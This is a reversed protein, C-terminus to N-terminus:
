IDNSFFFGWTEEEEEEEKRKEGLLATYYSVNLARNRSLVEEQGEGSRDCVTFVCKACEWVCADACACLASLFLYTVNHSYVCLCRQQKQVLPFHLKRHLISRHSSHTTSISVSCIVSGATSPCRACVETLAKIKSCVCMSVCPPSLTPHLSHKHTTLLIICIHKM